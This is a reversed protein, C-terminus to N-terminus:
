LLAGYEVIVDVSFEAETQYEFVGLPTGLQYGFELRADIRGDGLFPALDVSSDGSVLIEEPAPASGARLYSAIVTPAGSAPHYLVLRILELGSLAGPSVPTLHLAFRTLRLDVTVGPEQVFPIEGGIDFEAVEVLCAATGACAVTTAIGPDISAVPSTIRISPVSLEAALLPRGCGALLAAAALLSARFHRM